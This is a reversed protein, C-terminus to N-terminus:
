FTDIMGTSFIVTGCVYGSVEVRIHGHALRLLTELDDEDRITQAMITNRSTIELCRLTKEAPIEKEEAVRTLLDSVKADAPFLLDQSPQPEHM